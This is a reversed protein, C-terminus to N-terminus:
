ISSDDCLCCTVGVGPCEDPKSSCEYKTCSGGCESDCHCWNGCDVCCSGAYLKSCNAVFLFVFCFSIGIAVAAQVMRHKPFYKM